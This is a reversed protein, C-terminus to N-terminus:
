LWLDSPHVSALGATVTPAVGASSQGAHGLCGAACGHSLHTATRLWVTAVIVKGVRWWWPNTPWQCPMVNEVIVRGTSLLWDHEQPFQYVIHLTRPSRDYSEIIRSVVTRFTQGVFPNFMFIVSVDDSILWELVNATVSYIEQARLRARAKEVNLASCHSLDNDLEVGVVRRYPLLGVILVTKGKGSGLDVFIDSPSPPLSKLMRRVPLWQCAEYRINDGRTSETSVSRRRRCESCATSCTGSLTIWPGSM